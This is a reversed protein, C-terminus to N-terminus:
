RKKLLNKRSVGALGVLGIGLILATAPETVPAAHATVNAMIAYTDQLISFGCIDEFFIDFYDGNALKIIGPQTSWHLGGYKIVGFLLTTYKGEGSGVYPEYGDTFALTAEVNASGQAWLSYSKITVTAFEFSISEGDSLPYPNSFPTSLQASVAPSGLTNILEIKSSNDVSFSIALAHTSFLLLFGLILSALFAKKMELRM